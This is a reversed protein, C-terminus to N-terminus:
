TIQRGHKFWYILLVYLIIEPSSIVVLLSFSPVWEGVGLTSLTFGGDFKELSHLEDDVEEGLLFSGAGDVVLM